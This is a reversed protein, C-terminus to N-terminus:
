EPPEQDDNNVRGIWVDVEMLDHVKLHLHFVGLIRVGIAKGQVLRRLESWGSARGGILTDGFPLKGDGKNRIRCSVDCLRCVSSMCSISEGM